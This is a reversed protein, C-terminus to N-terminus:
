RFNQSLFLWFQTSHNALMSCESNKKKKSFPFFEGSVNSKSIFTNLITKYFIQIKGIIIYIFSSYLLWYCFNRGQHITFVIEITTRTYMYHLIIVFFNFWKPCTPWVVKLNIFFYVWFDFFFFFQEGNKNDGNILCNKWLIM